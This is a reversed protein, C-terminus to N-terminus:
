RKGNKEDRETVKEFKSVFKGSTFICLFLM